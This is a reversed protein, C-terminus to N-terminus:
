PSASVRDLFGEDYQSARFSEHNLARRLLRLNTILPTIRTEAIIRDLTLVAEHRTPAYTTVSAVMPDHDSQVRAGPQVATEIRVKGTPAPPWRVDDTRGGFPRGTDPNLAAEIRAQVAHGTPEARTAEPPMGEGNALRVQIEVLDVNACLEHLAHEPQLAPHFALFHFSGRADLLFHASGVGRFRFSLALDIAAAWIAARVADAFRLADLAPAPSEALVRRHDKRVSVEREGVVVASGSGDGVLQVELHRPRDVHREVYLAGRDWEIRAITAELDEDSELVPLVDPEGVGFAPKIVLPYGLAEVDARLDAVERIPRESGPLVRLGADFAANRVSVRDRFLVIEEPTPGVFAISAKECARALRPDDDRLGYGPHLAACGSELAAGILANPDAYSDAVAVGGPGRAPGVRVSGDCAQVHVADDEGDAHVAITDAGIRRCTRAVRAAVEGRNAILIKEFM